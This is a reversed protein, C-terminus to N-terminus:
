CVSAVGLSKGHKTWCKTIQKQLVQLLIWYLPKRVQPIRPRPGKHPFAQFTKNLEKWKWNSSKRNTGVMGQLFKQLFLFIFFFCLFSIAQGQKDKLSATSFIYKAFEITPYHLPFYHLLFICLKYSSVIQDQRTVCKAIHYIFSKGNLPNVLLNNGNRQYITM